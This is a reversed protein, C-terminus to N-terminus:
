HEERQQDDRDREQRDEREDVLLSTEEFRECVRLIQRHRDGGDERDREIRREAHDESSHVAEVEPGTREGPQRIVRDDSGVIRAVCIGPCVFAKVMGM